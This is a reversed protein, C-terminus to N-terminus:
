DIGLSKYIKQMTSVKPTKKGSLYKNISERSIGSLDSVNQQTLHREKMTKHIRTKFDEVLRDRASRKDRAKVNSDSLIVVKHTDYNYTITMIDDFRIFITAPSHPEWYIIKRALNPHRQKFDSFIMDWTTKNSM